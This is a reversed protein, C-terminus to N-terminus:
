SLLASVKVNQTSNVETQNLTFNSGTDKGDFEILGEKVGGELFFQKKIGTLAQKKLFYESGSLIYVPLNNAKSHKHIFDTFKM